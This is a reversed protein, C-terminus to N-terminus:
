PGYLTLGFANSLFKAMEDRGVAGAPCYRNADCGAIVGRAWLYHAHKCFSDSVAIDQFHLKPSAASCSYSFGTVPDPGYKEPVAPGGGPAVMAKAVFIAMSARSILDSPCYSGPNCGTTVNEAALYHVSKCFSDTPLVDAFLSTGGAKCDYSGAGVEGSTPVNAGGGALGRALFIAMQDRPVKDSPCYYTYTAFRCGVTIGTHFVTEIKKYFPHARPVDAFSDGMHLDWDHTAGDANLAETMTFDFHGVHNPRLGPPLSVSYCDSKAKCSGVAGPAVTGYNAAGDPLLDPTAYATIDGSLAAPSSGRNKWATEVLVTEGPEFVGNGDSDASATADLALAAPALRRGAVALDYLEPSEPGSQGSRDAFGVKAPTWIQGGDVSRYVGSFRTGVYIAPRTSDLEFVFAGSRTAAFLLRHDIGGPDAAIAQISDAPLGASIPNWHAGGDGSRFLGADSGALVTGAPSSLVVLASIFGATPLGAGVPSWIAAADTTKYVSPGAGHSDALAVYLTGPANPDLALAEVSVDSPLGSKAPSWHAAADATKFIGGSALGAYVTGGAAPSAQLRRVQSKNPLGTGAPNWSTGGNASKYVGGDFNIGAYVTDPDASDVALSFASSNAPLGSLLPRWSEGGVDSRFIGGAGGIFVTGPSGPDTVAVYLFRRDIGISAFDFNAGADTSKLAAGEASAYVVTPNAPSVALGYTYPLQCCPTTSATWSAGGNGSRVIGEPGPGALLNQANTPDIVVVQYGPPSVSHINTWSGGGNTTKFIGNAAGAYVTEPHSPDIALSECTAIRVGDAFGVNKLTWSSGGDTTKYIGHLEDGVYVVQPNTPHIAIAFKKGTLEIGSNVASWTAGGDTTKFVGEFIVSAFLIQPNSPAMAISLVDEFVKTPVDLKVFPGDDSTRKYLGSGTGVYLTEPHTPDLVLADVSPSFLTSLTPHPFPYGFGGNSASWTVGGDSTKLISRGLHDSFYAIDPNTPHVAILARFGIFGPGLYKWYQTNSYASAAAPVVLAAALAAVVLRLTRLDIEEPRL